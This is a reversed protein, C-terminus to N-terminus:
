PRDYTVQKLPAAGPRALQQIDEFEDCRRVDAEARAKADDASETLLAVERGEVVCKGAGIRDPVLPVM